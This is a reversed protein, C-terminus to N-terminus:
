KSRAPLKVILNNMKRIMLITRLKKKLNMVEDMVEELEEISHKLRKIQM